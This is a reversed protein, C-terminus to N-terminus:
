GAAGLANQADRVSKSAGELKELRDSRQQVRGRQLLMALRLAASGARGERAERSCHLLEFDYLRSRGWREAEWRWSAVM